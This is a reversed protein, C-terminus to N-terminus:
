RSWGGVEFSLHPSRKLITIPHVLASPCLLLDAAYLRQYCIEISTSYPFPILSVGSCFLCFAVFCDLAGLFIHCRKANRGALSLVDLAFSM